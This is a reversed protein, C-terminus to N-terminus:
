RGVAVYTEFGAAKADRESYINRLDAMRPSRMGAAIRGLDLARFENWETLIVLADAGAAAAYADSAWEVGPLLAEGERRGQPDVVRVSAGAGVMDPVITM